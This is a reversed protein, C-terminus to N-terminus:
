DNPVEVEPVEIESAQAVMAAIQDEDLDLPVNVGPLSDAIADKLLDIDQRLTESNVKQAIVFTSAAGGFKEFSMDSLSVKWGGTELHAFAMGFLTNGGGIATQETRTHASARGYGALLDLSMRHYEGTDRHRAFIEDPFPNGNADM